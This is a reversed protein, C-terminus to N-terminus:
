SSSGGQAPPTAPLTQSRADTLAASFNAIYKDTVRQRLELQEIPPVPTYDYSIKLIGASIDTDSNEEPDYWCDFGLLQGDSVWQRGRAKITELIDKVISPHLEKAVFIAMADAISDAIVQASRTASEFAFLPDDSCTRSGWFRVGNMRVLTTVDAANLFGADTAPDQLDWSVGKSIGTVSKIAVNSLVKHWGQELDIAARLGLAYATAPVTETANTTVNWAQLDPWILMLERAAFNERYLAAEEKSAAAGASAYAMGRLKGAITALAQAVSQAGDLGPAGIIRPRVDLLSHADLLAQLGTKAGAANTGIVNSTTEAADEGEEVRVVVVFPRCQADIAELTRRLTGTAGSLGIAQPLDTLLVPKNLPFTVPDAAPATCVIGIIATAITRITRRGQNIEVVRVGHHYITAM